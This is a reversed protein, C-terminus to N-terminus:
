NPKRIEQINKSNQVNLFQVESLLSLYELVNGYHMADFRLAKGEPARRRRKKATIERPARGQTLLLPKKSTFMLLLVMMAMVIVEM